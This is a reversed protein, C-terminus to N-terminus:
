FGWRDDMNPQYALMVLQQNGMYKTKITYRSDSLFTIHHLNLPHHQNRYSNQQWLILFRSYPHIQSIPQSFKQLLQRPLLKDGGHLPNTPHRKPINYHQGDTTGPQSIIGLQIHDQEHQLSLGALQRLHRDGLPYCHYGRHWWLHQDDGDRQRTPPLQHLPLASRDEASSNPANNRKFIIPSYCM